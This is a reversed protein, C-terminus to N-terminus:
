SEGPDARCAGTRSGGAADGVEGLVAGQAGVVDELVEAGPERAARLRLDVAYGAQAGVIDKGVQVRPKGSASGM